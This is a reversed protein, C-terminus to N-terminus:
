IIANQYIMKLNKKLKTVENQLKEKINNEELILKAHEEEFSKTVEKNVNDYLKNIENIENEIKNKLNIIKQSLDKFNKISSDILIDNKKLSEEDDIKIM